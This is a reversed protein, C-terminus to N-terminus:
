AVVKKRRPTKAKKVSVKEKALSREVATMAQDIQAISIHIAERAQARAARAREWPTPIGAARRKRNVSAQMEQEERRADKYKRMRDDHAGFKAIRKKNNTRKPLGKVKIAM